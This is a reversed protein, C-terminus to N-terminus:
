DSKDYIAVLQDFNITFIDQKRGEQSVRYQTDNIIERIVTLRHLNNELYVVILGVKLDEKSFCKSASITEGEMILPEMSKGSVKLPFACLIDSVFNKNESLFKNDKLQVYNIFVYVGVAIIIIGIILVLTKKKM